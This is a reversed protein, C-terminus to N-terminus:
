YLHLLTQLKCNYNLDTVEAIDKAFSHVPVKNDAMAEM